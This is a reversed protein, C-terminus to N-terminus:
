IRSAITHRESNLRKSVPTHCVSVCVSISVRRCCIGRYCLTVRYFFNSWFTSLGNYFCHVTVRKAAQVIFYFYMVLYRCNSLFVHVCYLNFPYMAQLHLSSLTPFIVSCEVFEFSVLSWDVYFYTFSKM